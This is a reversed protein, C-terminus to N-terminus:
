SDEIIIAAIQDLNIIGSYSGDNNTITLIKSDQKVYHCNGKLLFVEGNPLIIQYRKM